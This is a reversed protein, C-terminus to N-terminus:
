RKDTTAFALPGSTVEVALKKLVGDTEASVRVLEVDIYVNAANLSEGLALLSPADGFLVLEIEQQCLCALRV